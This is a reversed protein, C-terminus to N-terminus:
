DQAPRAKILRALFTEADQTEMVKTQYNQDYITPVLRTQLLKNDLFYNILIISRTTGPWWAQDFFLNGLGYYIAGNKYLEFTQPQHASTGVVINAGLDILHRFFGIQDGASSNAYDCTTDEATNVYSNCEFFQVDIIIFDGREKAAAIDALAKEETYFNAGPTNDTTYGGTSYNYALMTINTGKESIELPIAAEAATKGGGVTKIGLSHYLDITAIAADDGCDQNHNGTLEIINIGSSTIADIMEPKSCINRDSASASFSSENSTHTLDFRSLYEGINASFFKADGGVQALKRNMNRSLATVGTQAFTLIQDSTPFSQINEALSARVAAVDEPHGELVYYEFFAGSTLTDLYYQGDIALLKQESTLNWISVLNKTQAVEPTVSITADYFDTTPLLIQYLISAEASETNGTDEPSEPNAEADPLKQIVTRTYITLDSKLELNSTNELIFNQGVETVPGISDSPTNKSTDITSTNTDDADTTNDTNDANQATAFLIKGPEHFVGKGAILLIGFFVALAVVVFTILIAFLQAKTSPATTAEANQSNSKSHRNKAPSNEAGHATFDHPNKASNQLNGAVSEHVPKAELNEPSPTSLRDKGQESM